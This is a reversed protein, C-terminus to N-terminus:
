YKIKLPLKKANDIIRGVAKESPLLRVLKRKANLEAIRNALHAPNRYRLERVTEVGALSLLKAYEKSIGSVRM